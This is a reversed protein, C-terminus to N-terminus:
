LDELGAGIQHVNEDVQLTLNSLYALTMDNDEAILVACDIKEFVPRCLAAKDFFMALADL